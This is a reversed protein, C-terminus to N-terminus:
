ANADAAATEDEGATALPARVSMGESLLAIEYLLGEVKAISSRLGGMKKGSGHPLVPLEQSGTYVKDMVALCRQVVQLGDRGKRGARQALRGVEGTLDLVGNFYEQFTMQFCLGSEAQMEEFSLLHFRKRFTRFSLAEALEEVNNSFSAGRLSPRESVLDKFVANADRVASAIDADAKKFDDRHLAYIANKSGKLFDRSRKIVQERAADFADYSAKFEAVRQLDFALVKSGSGGDGDGEGGVAQAKAACGEEAPAVPKAGEPAIDAPAEQETAAPKGALARRQRAIDIEYTLKELGKVRYKIADFSRRLESNRFDFQMLAEEIARTVELCFEVSQLDFEQGRNTAYRELDQTVHMLALLSREEDQDAVGTRWMEPVEFTLTGTQLFAMFACSASTLVINSHIDAQQLVRLRMEVDNWMREPLFGRFSTQEHMAQLVVAAGPLDARHMKAFAASALRQSQRGVEQVNKSATQVEVLEAAHEAWSSCGTVGGLDYAKPAAPREAAPVAIGELTIVVDAM